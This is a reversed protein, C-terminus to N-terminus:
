IYYPVDERVIRELREMIELSRKPGIGRIAQLFEIGADVVMLATIARVGGGYDMPAGYKSSDWAMYIKDVLPKDLVYDIASSTDPFVGGNSIVKKVTWDFSM